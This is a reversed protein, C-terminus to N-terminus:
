LESHKLEDHLCLLFRKMNTILSHAKGIFMIFFDLM